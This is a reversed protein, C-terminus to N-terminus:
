PSRRVVIQVAPGINQAVAKDRVQLTLVTDGSPFATNATTVYCFQRATSPLGPSIAGENGDAALTCPDAVPSHSEFRCAFDILANTVGNSPGFDTPSFGPVGGGGQAIPGADCIATSGNGLARDSQLQFDPRTSGNPTPQPVSDGVAAGSNGPRVEAVLLFGNPASVPFM